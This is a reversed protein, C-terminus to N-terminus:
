CNPDRDLTRCAWEEGRDCKYELQGCTYPRRSVYYAVAPAAIIPAAYYYYYRPFPRGYVVFGPGRRYGRRADADPTSVILGGLGAVAAIAITFAKKM